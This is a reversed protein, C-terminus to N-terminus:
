GPITYLYVTDFQSMDRPESVLRDNEYASGDNFNFALEIEEEVQDFGNSYIETENGDKVGVFKIPVYYISNSMNMSIFNNVPLVKFTTSNDVREDDIIIPSFPNGQILDM